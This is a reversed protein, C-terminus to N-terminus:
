ASLHDVLRKTLNEFGGNSMIVVRDGARCDNRLREIIDQTQDLVVITKGQLERADWTMEPAQYIIATDALALARGLAERQIGRRMTNSRPEFVCFVRGPVPEGALAELTERVATPHHAFDDFISVGNIEAIHELRRKVSRFSGLAPAADMPDIGAHGAAAVAAVANLANYGAPLLWEACVDRTAPGRIRLTGRRSVPQEVTWECGGGAAAFREVPTWVGMALVEALNADQANVILGGTGPVTRILHHFQNKIAALNDFIDAHDFELNNLVLTRPHYHVFKSRKDFFATDYEDAEVVFCSGDGLRASTGFNEPVGGILFGPALGAQDLIWALLSSTTTKGHTGAVALVWRGRLIERALWEPGSTYPLNRNLIAEILPNGRSLANGILIQSPQLEDLHEPLYGERLEVGMAALQDSMPPYVQSDCGSVRFGKELALKAVGGMFTGCIGVIHIHTM